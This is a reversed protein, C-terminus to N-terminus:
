NPLRRLASPAIQLRREEVREHQQQAHLALADFDQGSVRADGPSIVSLARWLAVRGRVGIAFLELAEFAGFEKSSPHKLKFRSAKEAVWAAAEKVTSAESGVRDVISRLIDRDEFLLRLESAAFAGLPEGAHQQELNKLLEIAFNAGALHDHLYAALPDNM